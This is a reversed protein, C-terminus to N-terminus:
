TKKLIFYQVFYDEGLDITGSQKITLSSNVIIKEFKQQSHFAFFRGDEDNNNLIGEFDNGGYQCVFILGDDKLV